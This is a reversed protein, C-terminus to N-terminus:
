AKRNPFMTGGTTGLDKLKKDFEEKATQATDNDIHQGYLVVVTDVAIKEFRKKFLDQAQKAFLAYGLDNSTTM